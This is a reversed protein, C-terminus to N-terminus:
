GPPPVGVALLARYTFYLPHAPDSMGVVPRKVLACVPV